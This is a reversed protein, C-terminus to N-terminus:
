IAWAPRNHRACECKPTRPCHTGLVGAPRRRSHRHASPHWCSPARRSSVPSATREGPGTAGAVGESVPFQHPSVPMEERSDDLVPHRSSAPAATRSSALAARVGATMPGTAGAESVPSAPMEGRKKPTKYNKRNSFRSRDVVWPPVLYGKVTFPPRHGLPPQLTLSQPCVPASLHYSGAPRGSALCPSLWPWFQHGRRTHPYARGVGRSSLARRDGGWGSAVRRSVNRRSQFAQAEL